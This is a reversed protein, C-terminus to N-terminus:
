FSVKKVLLMGTLKAYMLVNWFFFSFTHSVFKVYGLFFVDVIVFRVTEVKVFGVDMGDSISSAMRSLYVLYESEPSIVIGSRGDKQDSRRIGSIKVFPLVVSFSMTMSPVSTM